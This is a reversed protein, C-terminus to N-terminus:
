SYLRRLNLYSNHREQHAGWRRPEYAKAPYYNGSYFSKRTSDRMALGAFSRNTYNYRDLPDQLKPRVRPPYPQHPYPSAYLGPEQHYYDRQYLPVRM